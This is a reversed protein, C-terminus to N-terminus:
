PKWESSWDLHVLEAPDCKLFDDRRVLNELKTGSRPEDLVIKFRHGKREIEVPTGTELVQDLIRYIDKRLQTATVAM